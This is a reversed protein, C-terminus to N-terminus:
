VFILLYIAKERVQTHITSLPGNHAHCIVSAKEVKGKYKSFVDMVVFRSHFLLYWVSWYIACVSLRRTLAIKINYYYWFFFSIKMDYNGSASIM